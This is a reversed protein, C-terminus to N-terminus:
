QQFRRRKIYARISEELWALKSSTKTIQFYPVLNGGFARFFREVPEIMSGEFDLTKIHSPQATIAEWLCLSGAGSNRFEPDGGGMLYYASESDRLIYAGAHLNGKNDEAILIDRLGRKAAASDLREVISSSYPLTKGQREFTKRNIEIFEGVSNAPRVRVNFRNSAKRIDSRIKSQMGDWLSDKSCELNLRYTYNTSQTYGRWYFPLWNKCKFHWNHRYGDSPPLSDALSGLIDKEDALRTAERKQSPRLWPGLTQSLNPQTLWTQGRKRKIVYPHTGLVTDGRLVLSVDWGSPGVQAELWWAQSFLPISTETECLKTYLEKSKITKLSM